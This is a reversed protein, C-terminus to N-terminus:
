HAQMSTLKQKADAVESLEPDADKWLDFFKAYNEIAKEKQGKQEYIKGLMYFSKAFIDEYLFGGLTLLVERYIFRGVTLSTIKEYLFSAAVAKEDLIVIHLIGQM